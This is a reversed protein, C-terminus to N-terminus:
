SCLSIHSSCSNSPNIDTQADVEVELVEPSDSHSQGYTMPYKLDRAKPHALFMWTALDDQRAWFWPLRSGRLLPRALVESLEVKARVKLTELLAEYGERPNHGPQKPDRKLIIPLGKQALGVMTELADHDLWEM